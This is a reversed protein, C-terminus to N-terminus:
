DLQVYTWCYLRARGNGHGVPGVVYRSIDRWYLRFKCFCFLVPPLHPFPSPSFNNKKHRQLQMCTACQSCVRPHLWVSRERVGVSIGENCTLEGLKFRIQVKPIKINKAVIVTSWKSSNAGIYLRSRFSLLSGHPLYSWTMIIAETGGGLCWCGRHKMHLTALAHLDM